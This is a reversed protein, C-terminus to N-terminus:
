ENTKEEADLVVAEKTTREKMGAKIIYYQACYVGFAAATFGLPYAIIFLAYHVDYIITLPFLTEYYPSIYFMNFTESSIAHFILNSIMAIGFVALFVYIGNIFFKLNLRKREHVLIFIGLIIQLGHHAMTQINIGILSTFVTAPYFMTVLGGFMAFTCVYAIISDRFKGGGCFAILPLTYLPTSCLQFPFAYWEFDWVAKGDVVDMSFILQKYVELAVMFIWCGAIIWKFAKESCSRCKWCLLATIGIVLLLSIIHFLGYMGPETMTPQLWAVFKEFGNM